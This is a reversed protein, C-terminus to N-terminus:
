DHSGILSCFEFGEAIQNFPVTRVRAVLDLDQFVATHMYTVTTKWCGTALALVVIVLLGFHFPSKGM